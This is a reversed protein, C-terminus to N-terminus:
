ICGNGFPRRAPHDDSAADNDRQYEQQDNGGPQEVRRGVVGVTAGLAVSEHRVAVHRRIVKDASAVRRNARCHLSGRHTYLVEFGEVGVQAFAYSTTEVLNM